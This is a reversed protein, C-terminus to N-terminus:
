KKLEEWLQRRRRGDLLRRNGAVDVEFGALLAAHRSLQAVPRRDASLDLCRVQFGDTDDLQRCAILLQTGSASFALAEVKGPQRVPPTIIEGGASDWVQVVEESSVTAVRGGDADFQVLGVSGAHALPRTLPEATEAAWLRVVGDSGGTAVRSGDPSFQASRVVGSHSLVRSESRGLDYLLASSDGSLILVREGDRSFIVEEVKGRLSPPSADAAHEYDRVRLKGEETAVLVHRGGPSLWAREPKTGPAWSRARGSALDWVLIEREDLTLARRADHELGAWEVETHHELTATLAGTTTEYLRVIKGSAVCARRGDESLFARSGKPGQWVVAPAPDGSSLDWRLLRFAAEPVPAGEERQV